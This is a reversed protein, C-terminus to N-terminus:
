FLYDKTANEGKFTLKVENNSKKINKSYIFFNNYENNITNLHNNDTEYYLVKRNQKM